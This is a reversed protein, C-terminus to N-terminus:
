YSASTASLQLRQLNRLLQQCCLFVPTNLKFFHVSGTQCVWLKTQLFRIPILGMFVRIGPYYVLLSSTFWNRYIGSFMCCHQYTTTGWVCYWYPSLYVTHLPVFCVTHLLVFMSHTPYVFIGHLLSLFFQAQRVEINGRLLDLPFIDEPWM